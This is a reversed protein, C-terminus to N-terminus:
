VRQLPGAASDTEGYAPYTTDIEQGAEYGNAVPHVADEFSSPDLDLKAGIDPAYKDIMKEEYAEHVGTSAGDIGDSHMPGHLPQCADGVYHALIGAACLFQEKKGKKRYEVMADFIQWVRFPLAGMNNSKAKARAPVPASRYFKIWDTISLRPPDGCLDSITKGSGDPLDLDVYHNWNEQPRAAKGGRNINTKWVVDPVDALPVFKTASNPLKGTAIQAANYSLQALNDALFKRLESSTVWNTALEAIKYHGVPGWYTSHEVNLDTVIEVDLAHCAASISSALGYQTFRADGAEALKQGGWEVAIPQYRAPNDVAHLRAKANPQTNKGSKRGRGPGSKHQNAGDDDVAAPDICWLTGSDGPGTLLPADGRGGILFDSVYDTGNLTSYRYFLAKIEGEMRGARAGHAVLPLGIWDLSATACDFDMMPGIVGLGFVQATWLSIDDADILGIDLNSEVDSGAFRPYLDTFKAKRVAAGAAVGIRQRNGRVLTLVERGTAGAVHQNTLGYYREGDTVLCAISGVHEKGQVDTVVPYGGGIVNSSFTLPGTNQPVAGDYLSAKLICIPAVRGDPLFIFLPVPQESNKKLQEYSLWERVFVLVCPWSWPKVVTNELTRPGLAGASECPTNQPFLRRAM